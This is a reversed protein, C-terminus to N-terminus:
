MVSPAGCDGFVYQDSSLGFHKRLPLPSLASAETGKLRRLPGKQAGQQALSLLIGDSMRNPQMLVCCHKDGRQLRSAGSFSDGDFDFEPDLLDDWDPLFYRFRGTGGAVKANVRPPAAANTLFSKIRNLKKGIGGAFMELELGLKDLGPQVAPMYDKGLSLHVSRHTTAWENLVMSCAPASARATAPDMRKDYNSIGKLVGFLGYQASLVAISVDEPWQHERLFKRVVRYAPGDYRDLAPLLGAADRKRDACGLILLKKNLAVQDGAFESLISVEGLSRALRSTWQSAVLRLHSYRDCSEM